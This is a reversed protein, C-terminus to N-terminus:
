YAKAGGEPYAMFLIQEFIAFTTSGCFGSLTRDACAARGELM